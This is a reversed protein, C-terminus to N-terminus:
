IEPSFGEFVVNESYKLGWIYSEKSRATWSFVPVNFFKILRIPLRRLGAIEYNVFDPKTLLHFFLNRYLFNEYWKLSTIHLGSLQGRIIQPENDLLWKLRYPSFAQLIVEGKYDNLFSMLKTELVGVDGSNKLEILLPVQGDVLQLTESLHPIKENSDKLNLECIDELTVEEIKRDDGTMRFLDDDHFVIIHGDRLIHVDLEIAYGFEIARRFASLSNEPHLENHFGRHTIKKKYIWSNKKLRTV